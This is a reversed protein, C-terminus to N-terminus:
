LMPSCYPGEPFVAITKGSAVIEDVRRQIADTLHEKFVAHGTVSLLALEDSPINTTYFHLNQQGTKELVRIHMQLQWQDKIFFLGDRIDNLFDGHRFAYKKMISTFEPSGTGEGCSGFAIIEAKDKIAPLCNVFGKVCQYFTDDLPYGGCSTIAADALTSVTSCSKERVYAVTKEHSVFQEGSIIRNINREQDLVLNISFDAPCMQAISTNELHCPNDELVTNAASPHSLFGYGHFMQVTQLSALGPCVTKRGGSFGAMFHPEVLGTLIRFGAEVYTRNLSVGAGSWSRGELLSLSADNEAEHDIITYNEVTEKGFMYVKEDRTSPRHMGTAVVIVIQERDIGENVIYDLLLPLFIRYPIPRTIDSVVIVVNGKRRKKLQSKLPLCGTPNTISDLLMESADTNVPEYQPAYVISDDPVSLKLDEKGYRFHVNKM